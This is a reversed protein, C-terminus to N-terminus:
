RKLSVKGLQEMYGLELTEKDMLVCKGIGEHCKFHQYTQTDTALETKGVLTNLM